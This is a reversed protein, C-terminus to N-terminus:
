IDDIEFDSEEKEEEAVEAKGDAGVAALSAAAGDDFAVEVGDAESVESESESEAQALWQIFPACKDHIKQSLAKDVYKKSVKEAWSKFAPEEVVDEDYLKKFMAVVKPLRAPEMGILAEVGGLLYKQAKNNEDTFHQLLAKHRDIAGVIDDENLLLDALVLVGKEKCELRTAQGLVEKAPFKAKTKADKVFAEFLELRESMPREADNSLIMSNVAGSIESERLRVAEESTDIAWELEEGVEDPAEVNITVDVDVGQSKVKSSGTDVKTGGKKSAEVEKVDRGQQKAIKQLKREAKNLGKAAKGGAIVNPPNNLIFTHLKGTSPLFRFHGCAKCRQEIKKQATVELTTEPNHCSDCLVFKVIFKDLLNQFDEVRHTGNVIYREAKEDIQVQAGLEIGLFKTSYSPHRNLAKAVDVMNPIVTKIGNGKGEVKALMPPMKYRYFPDEVNRNVNLSM